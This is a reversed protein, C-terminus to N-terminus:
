GWESSPWWRTEPRQPPSGAPPSPSGDGTTGDEHQGAHSIQDGEQIAQEGTLKANAFHGTSDAKGIVMTDDLHLRGGPAATINIAEITDGARATGSIGFAQNGTINLNGDM